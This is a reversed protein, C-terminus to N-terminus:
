EQHFKSRKEREEESDESGSDSSSDCSLDNSKRQASDETKEPNANINGDPSEDLMKAYKMEFFSQLKRAMLVIEHDPPNYKYCNIFILRVDSAFEESNKFEHNYLKKKITGLDMPHKIVPNYDPLLLM